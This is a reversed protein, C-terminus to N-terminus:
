WFGSAFPHPQVNSPFFSRFNRGVTGDRSIFKYPVGYRTGDPINLIM